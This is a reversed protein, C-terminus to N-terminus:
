LQPKEDVTCYGSHFCLENAGDEARCGALQSMTSFKAWWAPGQGVPVPGTM